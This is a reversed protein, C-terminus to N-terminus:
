GEHFAECIRAKETTARHGVLHQPSDVTWEHVVM